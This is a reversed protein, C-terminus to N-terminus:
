SLPGSGAFFDILAGLLRLVRAWIDRIFERGNASERITLDQGLATELHRMPLTRELM